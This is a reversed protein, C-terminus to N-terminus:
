RLSDRSPPALYVYASNTAITRNADTGDWAPPPIIEDLQYFGDTAAAAKNCPVFLMGIMLIITAVIGTKKM